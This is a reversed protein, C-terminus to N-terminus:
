RPPTADRSQEINITRYENPNHRYADRCPKCWTPLPKVEEFTIKGHPDSRIAWGVLADLCCTPKPDPTTM